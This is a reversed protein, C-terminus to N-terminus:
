STKRPDRIIMERLSGGPPLTPIALEDEPIPVRIVTAVNEKIATKVSTAIDEYSQVDFGLAGFAEALKIYDTRYGLEVSIIRGGFFLDQVQRVLGLNRNDFVVVIVPINEEVVVPLNNATMLFSGDGDLDVVVNQPRALKAGIAAPFGFGMTGMGGSSIFTRPKLVDWFVGTWMQHQGVGTTVIADRPLVDRITKLVRWPKLGKGDDEYYIRTYYDKLERIRRIWETRDYKKAVITLASILERLITKADGVLGVDIKISQKEIETPDINIMIIKKNSDKIDDYKTITRDSLRAGVVLVVDSELFAQNAEARGYYGMMGLYLPYDHPVAAKGLFTSVIPAVLLDSLTVVEETANSWVVGAGVLILPKEANVLLEIAKKIAIQDIKLPFERYGKISQIDSIKVGNNVNQTWIDRPVDIVVPGPRGTLAIYFANRIWIPIEDASNLRIAFKSINQVVGIIDAEQFAMKGMSSLPVQGTIAIIPSSDWYATAIGTVLNLAGPGSTATCVGPFGSARAYGDAAHAAGQEHRMLINRLYGDKVYDYLVDYFKMNSLGPIGFIVRVGERVLSEVMLKAGIM